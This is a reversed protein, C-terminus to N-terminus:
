LSVFRSYHLMEPLSAEKLSLAQKFYSSRGYSLFISIPTVAPSFVLAGPTARPSSTYRRRVRPWDQEEQEQEQEQLSCKWDNKRFLADSLAPQPPSFCPLFPSLVDCLYNMMDSINDSWRATIQDFLLCCSVFQCVRETEKQTVKFSLLKRM